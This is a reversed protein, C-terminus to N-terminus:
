FYYRMRVDERREGAAVPFRVADFRPAGFGLVPNRSFGIGERPIGAFTDLKGNDNEDHILAIGWDGAPLGTFSTRPSAAPINRKVIMGAASCAPFSKADRTLCIRLTGKPSRLGDISLDIAGPPSAGPLLALAAAPLLVRRASAAWARTRGAFGTGFGSISGM